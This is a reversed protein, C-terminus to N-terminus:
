KNSKERKTLRNVHLMFYLKEDDSMKIGLKDNIYAEIRKVCGFAEPYRTKIQEYLFEEHSDEIDNSQVRKLFFRLHTIFRTFNLSDEDFDMKYHYKILNLIDRLIKTMSKSQALATGNQQGNVFHIAIFGAEDEVMAIGTRLQIKELAKMSLEYEKPYFRKIEWLMANSLSEGNQARTIAYSIHDALGIYISNDFKVNLSAEADEIIEKTVILHNAPINNALEQLNKSNNETELIYVKDVQDLNIMDNIKKGFGIGKGLLMKECGAEDEALLVNNNFVRKIKM